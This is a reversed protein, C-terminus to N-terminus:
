KLKNNKKLIQYIILLGQLVLNDEYKYKFTLFPKLEEFNGGTIIPKLSTKLEKNIAKITNEIMYNFGNGYGISLAHKTSNGLVSSYKSIQFSKIQAAENSLALKASTFGPGIIVGKLTNDKITVYTTATGLSVTIANTFKNHTAVAIAILDSGIEKYSVDVKIPLFKITNYNVILPKFQFVKTIIKSIISTKKPVVSCIIINEIKTKKSLFIKQVTKEWTVENSSIAKIYSINNTAEDSSAIKTLTNGIDILLIM